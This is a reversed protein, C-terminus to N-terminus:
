LVLFFSFPATSINTGAGFATSAAHVTRVKRLMADDDVFLVKLSNPLEFSGVQSVVIGESSLSSGALSETSPKKRLSKRVLGGDKVLHTKTHDAIVDESLPRKMLSIVFRAGPCGEVGSDYKDDLYIEGGLLSM